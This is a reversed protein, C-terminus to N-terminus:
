HQTVRELGEQYEKSQYTLPFLNITMTTGLDEKYSIAYGTKSLKKSM